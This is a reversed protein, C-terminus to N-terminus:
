NLITDVHVSSVICQLENFLNEVQFDNSLTYAIWGCLFGNVALRDTKEHNALTDAISHVHWTM